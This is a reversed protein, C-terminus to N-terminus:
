EIQLNWDVELIINTIITGLPNQILKNISAEESLGKVRITLELIYIPYVEKYNLAM